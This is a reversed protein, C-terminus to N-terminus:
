FENFIINSFTFNGDGNSLATFTQMFSVPDKVPASSSSSGKKGVPFRALVGVVLWLSFTSMEQNRVAQVTRVQYVIGETRSYEILKDTIATAGRFDEGNFKLVTKDTQIYENGTRYFLLLLL